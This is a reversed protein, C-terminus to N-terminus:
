QFEGSDDVQGTDLNTPQGAAYNDYGGIVQGGRVGSGILMGSTYTWHERGGRTNFQPYRGMESLVVVTLSDALPAGTVDTTNSVASFIGSLGSFLGDFHQSQIQNSAHTDWGLEMIGDYALMGCRAVGSSFCDLIIQAREVLTEGSGLDLSESMEQLEGLRLEADLAGSLIM